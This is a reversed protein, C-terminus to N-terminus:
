SKFQTQRVSRYMGFWKMCGDSCGASVVDVMHYKVSTWEAFGPFSFFAKCFHLHILVFLQQKSQIIVM